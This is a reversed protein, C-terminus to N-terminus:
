VSIADSLASNKKLLLKLTMWQLSTMVLVWQTRLLMWTSSYHHAGNTDGMKAM